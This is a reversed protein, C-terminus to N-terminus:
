PQWELFAQLYRAGATGSREPHFQAAWWNEHAIAAPIPEGYQAHAVTANSDPCAFSHAFYVYAGEALGVADDALSLASWGMHPVPRDEAPQLARVRGPVLGLCEIDNEDSSEFLLQMGLCIGLAPCELTRLTEVLGRQRLRAMAHGAAGVGPLVVRDAARLADADATVDANVGLRAFAHRISAINGYDLDVIALTRAPTM